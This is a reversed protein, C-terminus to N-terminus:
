PAGSGVPGEACLRFSVFSSRMFPQIGARCACRCDDADDGWTGGRIVYQGADFASCTLERMLGAMDVCGYVSTDVAYSGVPVPRPAGALSQRMHCWLPDFHDGWPYSRGDVGRAAKEWEEETLLRM